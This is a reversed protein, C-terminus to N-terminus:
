YILNVSLISDQLDEGSEDLEFVYERGIIGGKPMDDEYLTIETDASEFTYTAIGRHDEDIEILTYTPATSLTPICLALLFKIM